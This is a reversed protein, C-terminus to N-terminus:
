RLVCIFEFCIFCEVIEAIVHFMVHFSNTFLKRSNLKLPCELINM